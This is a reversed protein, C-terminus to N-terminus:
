RLRKIPADLGCPGVVVYWSARTLRGADGIYGAATSRGMGWEAGDGVEEAFDGARDESAMSVAM